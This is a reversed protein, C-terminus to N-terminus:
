AIGNIDHEPGLSELVDENIVVRQNICLNLERLRHVVIPVIIQM